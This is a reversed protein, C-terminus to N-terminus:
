LGSLRKSQFDHCGSFCLFMGATISFQTFYPSANTFADPAAFFTNFINWHFPSSYTMQLTTKLSVRMKIEKLRLCCTSAIACSPCTPILSILNSTVHGKTLRCVAFIVESNTNKEELGENFWMFITRITHDDPHPYNQFSSNNTVSTEVVQTSTM